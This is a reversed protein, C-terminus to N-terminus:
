IDSPWVSIAEKERWLASETRLWELFARVKKQRLHDRPCVIWQTTLRIQPPANVPCILRGDRLERWMMLNSELAIGFGDCAADIAMHSRDFFV